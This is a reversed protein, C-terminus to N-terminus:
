KWVAKYYRHCGACAVRPRRTATYRPHKPCRRTMRLQREISELLRVACPLGTFFRVLTQLEDRLDMFLAAHASPWSSGDGNWQHNKNRM